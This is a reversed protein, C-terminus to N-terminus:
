EYIKAVVSENMEVNQVFFYTGNDINNGIIVDADDGLLNKVALVLIYRVSRRYVSNGISSSRDFFDIECNKKLTDGLDTLTNDARAVLIDYKFRDKFYESIEKFTTGEEFELSKEGRFSVKYKKDM